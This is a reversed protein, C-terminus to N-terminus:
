LVPWQVYLSLSPLVLDGLAKSFAFFYIFTRSIFRHGLKSGDSGVDISLQNFIHVSRWCLFFNGFLKSFNDLSFFFFRQYFFCPWLLVFTLCSSNLQGWYMKRGNAVSSFITTDCSYWIAKIPHLNKTGVWCYTLQKLFTKKVEGSHAITIQSLPANSSPKYPPLFGPQYFNSQPCQSASINFMEKSKTHYLKLKLFRSALLLQIVNVRVVICGAQM